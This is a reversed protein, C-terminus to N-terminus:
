WGAARRRRCLYPSRRHRAPRVAARGAALSGEAGVAAQYLALRAAPRRYLGLRVVQRHLPGSRASRPQDQSLPHRALAYAVKGAATTWKDLHAAQDSQASGGYYLWIAPSLGPGKPHSAGCPARTVCVVLRKRSSNELSSVSAAPAAWPIRRSTSVSIFACPSRMRRLMSTTCRSSNSATLSIAALARSSFSRRLARM